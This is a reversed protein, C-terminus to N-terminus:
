LPPQNNNNNNNNNNNDCYLHRSAWLIIIIIMMIIIIIITIIIIIILLLVRSLIKDQPNHLYFPPRSPQGPLSVPLTQLLGVVLRSHPMYRRNSACISTRTLPRNDSAQHRTDSMRHSVDLILRKKSTLRKM